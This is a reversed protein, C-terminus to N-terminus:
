ALAEAPLASRHGTVQNRLSFWVMLFFMALWFDKTEMM